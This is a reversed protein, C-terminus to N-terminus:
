LAATEARSAPNPGLTPHRPTHGAAALAAKWSGFRELVPTAGPVPRPHADLRALKAAHGRRRIMHREWDIRAPPQGYREAWDNIAAIIEAPTWRTPRAM